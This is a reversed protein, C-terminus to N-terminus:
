DSFIAELVSGIDALNEFLFDPNEKELTETSYLGTAVAITKVGLPRGCGVDHPTDGIIVIDKGQFHIGTHRWAAEVARALLHSRDQADDGFAGFPFYRNLDHVGLKIRAGVEFNGTLLGLSVDERNSLTELLNLVGPKLTIDERSFVCLSLRDQYHDRILPIVKEIEERSLGSASLLVHIMQPDTTGGIKYNMVDVEFGLVDRIAESFPPLFVNRSATLLTGDIDFLLLRKQVL